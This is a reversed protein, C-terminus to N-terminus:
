DYLAEFENGTIRALGQEDLQMWAARWREKDRVLPAIFRTCTDEIISDTLGDPTEGVHRYWIERAIM